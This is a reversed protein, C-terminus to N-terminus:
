PYVKHMSLVILMTKPLQVKKTYTVETIDPNIKVSFQNDQKNSLNNNTKTM